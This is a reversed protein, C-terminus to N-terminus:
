IVKHPIGFGRCAAAQQMHNAPGNSAGQVLWPGCSGKCAECAAWSIVHNSDLVTCKPGVGPCAPKGWWQAWVSPNQRGWGQNAAGRYRDQSWACKVASVTVQLHIVVGLVCGTDCMACSETQRQGGSHPSHLRWCERLLLLLLLLRGGEQEGAAAAQSSHWGLSRVQAHGCAYTAKRACGRSARGWLYGDPISVPRQCHGM